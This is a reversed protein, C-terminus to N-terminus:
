EHQLRADGLYSTELLNQDAALEAPTVPSRWSATPSCTRATRRSGPRSPRAAGRPARRAARDDAYRRLAPWVGRRHDPGARPQARGGDPPPARELAGAGHSCRSSGVPCCVPAAACCRDSARSTESRSTSRLRRGRCSCRSPRERVTLQQFLCRDEPVHACGIRAIQHPRMSCTSHGLIEVEGSMPRVLGSIALLTTTKGAGNSGLLAVVEGPQVHLDIARVSRSATTDPWSVESM